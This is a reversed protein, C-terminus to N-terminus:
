LKMEVSLRMVVDGGDCHGGVRGKEVGGDEVMKLLLKLLFSLDSISESLDNLAKLTGNSCRLAEERANM